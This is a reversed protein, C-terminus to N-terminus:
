DASIIECLPPTPLGGWPEKFFPRPCGLLRPEQELLAASVATRSVDESPFPVGTKAGNFTFRNICLLM